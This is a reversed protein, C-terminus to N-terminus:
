NRGAAMYIETTYPGEFYKSAVYYVIGVLGSVAVGVRSNEGLAIGLFQLAAGTYMPNDNVNYPFGHVRHEMLIDFYDGLYTGTVGLKWMSSLTLVAGVAVLAKGAVSLATQEASGKPVIVSAPNAKIMKAFLMDRVASTCFIWTALAYSARYKGGFLKTMTQRKHENRAVINWILPCAIVSGAAVTVTEWHQVKGFVFNMAM